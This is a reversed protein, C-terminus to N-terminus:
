NMPYNFMIIQILNINKDCCYELIDFLITAKMIKIERKNTIYTGKNM